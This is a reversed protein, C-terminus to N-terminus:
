HQRNKALIQDSRDAANMYQNYNQGAKPQRLRIQQGANGWKENRDVYVQDNAHDISTLMTVPRNDKWQLALCVGDREWRMSGRQERKAWEKGKKMSDPYGRRNEATTGTAPISLQLLEKVLTVSTYFNDFYLHYGQNILPQVLKM